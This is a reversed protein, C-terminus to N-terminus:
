DHRVREKRYGETKPFFRKKGKKGEARFGAEVLAYTIATKLMGPMKPFELRFFRDIEPLGRRKKLLRYITKIFLGRPRKNVIVALERLFAAQQALLRGILDEIAQGQFVEQQHGGILAAVEGARYMRLAANLVATVRAASSDEWCNFYDTTEDALFLVKAKPMFFSVSDPTHGGSLFALLDDEGFTWGQFDVGGLQFTEATRTEFPVATEPSPELPEFKKMVGSTMANIFHRDILAPWIWRFLKLPKILLSFPFGPGDEIRYYEALHDFDRRTRVAYDLNELGARAIYHEKRGAPIEDIVSNNPTHDPHGHSNLLVLRDFPRLSEAATKLRERFFRTAGTDMLYLTGDAKHVVASAIDPERLILTPDLGEIFLTDAAIPHIEGFM